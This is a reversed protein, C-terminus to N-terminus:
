VDLEISITDLITQDDFILATIFQDPNYMITDNYYSIDLDKFKKNTIDFADYNIVISNGNKSIRYYFKNFLEFKKRKIGEYSFRKIELSPGKDADSINNKSSDISNSIGMSLIRERLEDYEYEGIYSFNYNSKVRMRLLKLSIKKFDVDFHIVNSSKSSTIVINKYNSYYLITCKHIENCKFVDLGKTPASLIGVRIDKYFLNSENPHSVGVLSNSYYEPDLITFYLLRHRFVDKNKFDKKISDGIKLINVMLKLDKLEKEIDKKNEIIM